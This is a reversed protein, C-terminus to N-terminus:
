LHSAGGEMRKLILPLEDLLDSAVLARQGKKTAAEDGALGHLYVGCLSAAEPGMGQALFGGVMGTLVDGMGGSAMGPNGTPNVYVQGSPTAIVTRAGKLIVFVKNQEAYDRAIGIRNNQVDEVNAGLIRAMEGPHPTMIIPARAKKLVGSNVAIADLGGADVVLPVPSNEILSSLLEVTDANPIIGPGIVLATMKQWLESIPKLARASFSGDLTEELPYTMVETLKIELIPNLSKPIGLTILGAGTKLGAQSAMAAAGTMGPSGAIILLRGYDGKHSDPKRPPFFGYLEEEMILNNRIKAKEVLRAPIGIDVIKLQGVYAAGPYITLGIKPLALTVTLCAKVAVGMVQGTSANLGSPLDIAVVPKNLENIKELAPRYFGTVESKLGTGLIGDVLLDCFRIEKLSELFQESESLATLRGGNALYAELNAKADGQLNEPKALLFVRCDIGKRDLHRGVVLADGGNNGRGALVGVKMKNLRPFYSFLNHVVGLGAREMLVLGPIKCEEIARKDLEAMQAATVLKM